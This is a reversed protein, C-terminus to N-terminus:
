KHDSKDNPDSNPSFAQKITNEVALYLTSKFREYMDQAKRRYIERLEEANLEEREIDEPNVDDEHILVVM